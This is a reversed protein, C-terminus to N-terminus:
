SQSRYLAYVNVLGPNDDATRTTFSFSPLRKKNFPIGQRKKIVAVKFWRGPQDRLKTLIAPEETARRGAKSPPLDDVPVPTELLM